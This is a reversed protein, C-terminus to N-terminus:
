NFEITKRRQKEDTEVAFFIFLFYVRRDFLFIKKSFFLCIIKIKILTRNQIILVDFIVNHTTKMFNWMVKINQFTGDARNKIIDLRRKILNCTIVAYYIICLFSIADFFLEKIAIENDAFGAIFIEVIWVTKRLQSIRWSLLAVNEFNASRAFNFLILDFFKRWFFWIFIVRATIKGVKNEGIKRPFDRSNFTVTSFQIWIIICFNYLSNATLNAVFQTPDYKGLQGLGSLVM